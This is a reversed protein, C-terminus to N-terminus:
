GRQLFYTREQGIKSGAVDFVDVRCQEVENM